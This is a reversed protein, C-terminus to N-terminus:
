RKRREQRIFQDLAERRGPKTTPGMSWLWQELGDLTIHWTMRVIGDPALTGFRPTHEKDIHQRTRQIAKGTSYGLATLIDHLVYVGRITRVQQDGFQVTTHGIRARKVRYIFGNRKRRELGIADAEPTDVMARVKKAGMGLLKGMATATMWTTHEGKPRTTMKNKVPAVYPKANAQLKRRQELSNTIIREVSELPWGYLRAIHDPDYGHLYDGVIWSEEPTIKNM